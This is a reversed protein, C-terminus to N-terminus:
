REPAVSRKSEARPPLAQAVDCVSLAESAAPRRARSAATKEYQFMVTLAAALEQSTPGDPVTLPHGPVESPDLVDMDIHIYIIDTTESLRRMQDYAFGRTAGPLPDGAPASPVSCGHPQGSASARPGRRQKVRPSTALDAVPGAADPQLWETTKFKGAGM